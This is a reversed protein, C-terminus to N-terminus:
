TTMGGNTKIFSENRDEIFKYTDDWSAWDSIRNSLNTLRDSVVEQSRNINRNLFTTELESFGKMIIFWSMAYIIGVLGIAWAFTILLSKKNLTMEIPKM